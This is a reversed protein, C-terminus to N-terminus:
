LEALNSLMGSIECTSTTSRPNAGLGSLLDGKQEAMVSGSDSNSFDTQAGM